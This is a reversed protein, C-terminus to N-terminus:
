FEITKVYLLKKNIFKRRIKSSIKIIERITIFKKKRFLSYNKQM